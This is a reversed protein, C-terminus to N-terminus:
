RRKGKRYIVWGAQLRRRIDSEAIPNGLSKLFNHLARFTEADLMGKIRNCSACCVVLNDLRCARRGRTLPEAHDIECDLGLPMRCYTCQRAETLLTLLDDRTYDLEVGLNKAAKRHNALARKAKGLLLESQTQLM